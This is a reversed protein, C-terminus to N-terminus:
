GELASARSEIRGILKGFAMSDTKVGGEGPLPIPILSIKKDMAFNFRGVTRNIVKFLEDHPFPRRYPAILTTIIAQYGGSTKSKDYLDCDQLARRLIDTLEAETIMRHGVLSSGLLRVMRFIGNLGNFFNRAEGAAIAEPNLDRDSGLMRSIEVPLVKRCADLFVKVYRLLSASTQLHNLLDDYRDLSLFAPTFRDAEKILDALLTGTPARRLPELKKATEQCFHIIDATQTRYHLLEDRNRALAARVSEIAQHIVAVAAKPLTEPFPIEGLAAGLSSCANELTSLTPGNAGGSGSLARHIKICLDFRAPSDGRSRALAILNDLHVGNRLDRDANALATAIGRYKDALPALGAAQQEVQELAAALKDDDGSPLALDAAISGADNDTIATRRLLETGLSDLNKTLTQIDVTIGLVPLTSFLNLNDITKWGRIAPAQAYGEVTQRLASFRNRLEGLRQRASARSADGGAAVIPDPPPNDAPSDM